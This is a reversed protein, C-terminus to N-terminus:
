ECLENLSQASRLTQGTHVAKNGFACADTIAGFTGLAGDLDVRFRGALSRDYNM